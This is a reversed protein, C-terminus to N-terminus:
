EDEGLEHHCIFNHIAALIHAQIELSYEPTILLIQFKHKLVGFIWEIVNHTSTHWLNLPEEKTHPRFSQILPSQVSISFQEDKNLEAGNPLTTDSVMIPLWFMRAQQHTVPMLWTIIAM